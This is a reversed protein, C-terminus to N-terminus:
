KPSTKLVRRSVSEQKSLQMNRASAKETTMQKYARVVGTQQCAYEYEYTYTHLATHFSTHLPRSGSAETSVGRSVLSRKM